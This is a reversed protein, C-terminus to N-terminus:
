ETVEVSGTIVEINMTESEVDRIIKVKTEESQALLKSTIPIDKNESSNLTYSRDEEVPTDPTIIEDAMQDTDNSSSSNCGIFLSMVFTILIFTKSISNM